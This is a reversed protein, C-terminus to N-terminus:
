IDMCSMFAYSWMYRCCLINLIAVYNVNVCILYSVNVHVYHVVVVVAIDAVGADCAESQIFYVAASIFFEM